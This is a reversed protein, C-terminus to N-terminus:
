STEVQQEYVRNELNEKKTVNKLNSRRNDLGNLNKHSVRYKFRKSLPIKHLLQHMYCNTRKGNKHRIWRAAYILIESKKKIFWKWQNLYDFDEDDVIAVKGKTLPITKM